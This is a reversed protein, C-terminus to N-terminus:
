VIIISNLLFLPLSCAKKAVIKQVGTNVFASGANIAQSASAAYLKVKKFDNEEAINESDDAALKFQPSSLPKQTIVESPEAVAHSLKVLYRTINSNVNFVIVLSLCFFTKLLKLLNSKM